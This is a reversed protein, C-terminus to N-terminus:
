QQMSEQLHMYIIESMIERLLRVLKLKNVNIVEAGFFTM